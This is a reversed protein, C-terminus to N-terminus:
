ASFESKETVYRGMNAKHVWAQQDPSARGTYMPRNFPKNSCLYNATHKSLRDFNMECINCELHSHMLM